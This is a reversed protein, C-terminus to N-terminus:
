RVPFFRRAERWEQWGPFNCETGKAVPRGLKFTHFMKEKKAVMIDLKSYWGSLPRLADPLDTGTNIASQILADPLPLKVGGKEMKLMLSRGVGFAMMAVRENNWIRPDPVRYEIGASDDEYRQLRFEGAQGYYQRRAFTLPGGYITTLPIGVYMDMAKVFQRVKDFSKMWAPVPNASFHMHGGAYRMPHIDGNLKVRCEEGTYANLAPDCGFTRVDYPARRLSSPVIRWAPMATLKYGKPLHKGAERLMFRMSDVLVSRCHTPPVNIELAFGDRFLKGQGRSKIQVSLKHDRSPFFKHAPVPRMDPGLIM